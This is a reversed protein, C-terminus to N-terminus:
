ACNRANTQKFGDVFEYSCRRREIVLLIATLTVVVVAICTCSIDTHNNVVDPLTGRLPRMNQM